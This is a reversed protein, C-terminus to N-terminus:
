NKAEFKIITIQVAIKLKKSSLIGKQDELPLDKFGPIDLCFGFFMKGLKKSGKVANEVIRKRGDIDLGTETYVKKYEEWELPKLSGFLQM